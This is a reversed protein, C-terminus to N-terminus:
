VPNAGQTMMVFQCPPSIGRNYSKALVEDLYEQYSSPLESMVLEGTFTCLVPQCAYGPQMWAVLHLMMVLYGIAKMVPM